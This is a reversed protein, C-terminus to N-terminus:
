EDKELLSDETIVSVPAISDTRADFNRFCLSLKEDFGNVLDEISGFAGIDGPSFCSDHLEPHDDDDDGLLLQPAAEGAAAARGKRPESVRGLDGLGPFEDDFHAIPAAM